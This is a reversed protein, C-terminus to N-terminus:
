PKGQARETHTKSNGSGNGVYTQKEKFIFYGKNAAGYNLEM